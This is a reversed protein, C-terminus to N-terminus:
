WIKGYFGVMDHLYIYWGWQADPIPHGLRSIRVKSGLVELRVVGLVLFAGGRGPGVRGFCVAGVNIMSVLAAVAALTQPLTEPLYGLLV